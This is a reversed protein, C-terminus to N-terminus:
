CEGIAVKFFGEIEEQLYGVINDLQGVAVICLKLNMRSSKGSFIGWQNYRHPTQFFFLPSIQSPPGLGLRVPTEQQYKEQKWWIDCTRIM